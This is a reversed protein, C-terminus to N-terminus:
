IPFENIHPGESESLRRLGDVEKELKCKRDHLTEIDGVDQLAAEMRNAMHQAEEILGPLYSFNRTESCKRMEEFVDCLTRNLYM